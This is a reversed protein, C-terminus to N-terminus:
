RIEDHLDGIKQSEYVKLKVKLAEIEKKLAHNKRM